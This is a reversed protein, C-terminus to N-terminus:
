TQTFTLIEEKTMFGFQKAFTDYENEDINFNINKSIIQRVESFLPERLDGYTSVYKYNPTGSLCSTLFGDFEEVARLTIPNYNMPYTLEALKELKSVPEFTKIGAGWKFIHSIPKYQYYTEWDMPIDFSSLDIPKNGIIQFTNNKLIESNKILSPTTKLGNFDIPKLYPNDTKLLYFDILSPTMLVKDFILTDRFGVNLESVFAPKYNRFKDLDFIVRGYAYKRNNLKIRFIDGSKIAQRKQKQTSLYKEFEEKEFSSTNKIRNEIYKIVDKAAKFTLNYDFLVNIGNDFNYLDITNSSAKFYKNAPKMKELVSYSLGKLKGTKGIIKFDNTLHIDYDIERYSISNENSNDMIFKHLINNIDILVKSGYGNKLEYEKWEPKIPKIQYHERISNTLM